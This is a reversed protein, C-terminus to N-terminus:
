RPRQGSGVLTTRDSRLASDAAAAPQVFEANETAEPHQQGPCLASMYRLAPDAKKAQVATMSPRAARELESNASHQQDPFPVFINRVRCPGQFRELLMAIQCLSM